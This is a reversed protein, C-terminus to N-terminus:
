RATSSRSVPPRSALRVKFQADIDLTGRRDTSTRSSRPSGLDEFTFSPPPRYLLGEGSQFDHPGFYGATLIPFRDGVHLSAPMGDLGRTQAELLVKGSSETMKAVLAANMINVAFMQGIAWPGSLLQIPNIPQIPFTSPFDV